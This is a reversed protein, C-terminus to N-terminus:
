LAGSNRHPKPAKRSNHNGAYALQQRLQEILHGMCVGGTQVTAGRELIRSLLSEGARDVFSVGNLDLIMEKDGARNIADRWCQEAESTCPDSLRGELILTLASPQEKLTIKLM